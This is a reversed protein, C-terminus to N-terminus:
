MKGYFCKRLSSYSRLKYINEVSIKVGKKKLESSFVIVDVSNGFDFFSGNQDIKELGLVLKWCSDFIDEAEDNNSRNLKQFFFDKDFKGNITRPLEEVPFFEKPIMYCPLHDYLLSRIYDADVDTDAVYATGIFNIGKKEIVFSQALKIKKDMYLLSDIEKLDIRNGAIKIQSDKRGVYHFAGEVDFYCHDGTRYQREDGNISFSSSDTIGIYGNSVCIGNVCLEGVVYPRKISRDGNALSIRTNRIPYGIPYDSSHSWGKYHLVDDTCEAPGYANIIKNEPIIESLKRFISANLKEGTIMFSRINDALVILEDYHSNLIFETQLPTMELHVNKYQRSIEIFYYPNGSQENDMLYVDIGKFLAIFFQWIHIDFSIPSSQIYLDGDCFKVVDAKSLLHNNLGIRNVRVGKPNGTSGSTFIIYADSESINFDYILNEDFDYSECQSNSFILVDKSRREEMDTIITANGISAVIYDFREKPVNSHVPTFPRGLYLCATMLQFYTFKNDIALVLTSESGCNEMIWQMQLNVKKMFEHHNISGGNHYIFNKSEKTTELMEEYININSISPGNMKKAWYADNVEIFQKESQKHIISDLGQHFEKHIYNIHECSFVDYSINLYIEFGDGIECVELDLGYKNNEVIIRQPEIKDCHPKAVYNYSIDFLPHRSPDFLDSEDMKSIISRMSIDLYNVSHCWSNNFEKIMDSNSISKSTDMLIPIINTYSGHAHLLELSNRTTVTSGLIFRNLCFCHTILKSLLGGFVVFTTVNMINALNKVYEAQTNDLAYYCSLAKWKKEYNLHATRLREQNFIKIEKLFRDLRIIYNDSYEKEKEHKVFAELALIENKVTENDKKLAQSLLNVCGMGDFYIHSARIFIYLGSCSPTLEIAIKRLSKPYLSYSFCKAEADKRNHSIGVTYCEEQSRNPIFFRNEINCTILKNDNLIATLCAKYEKIAMDTKVEYYATITYDDPNVSKVHKDIGFQSISMEYM